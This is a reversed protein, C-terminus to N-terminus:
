RAAGTPFNAAARHLPESSPATSKSNELSGDATQRSDPRSLSAPRTTIRPSSDETEITGLTVISAIDPSQMATVTQEPSPQRVTAVPEDVTPGATDNHRVLRNWRHSAGENLVIAATFCIAILSTWRMTRVAYDNRAARLAALRERSALRTERVFASGPDAPRSRRPMRVTMVEDHM